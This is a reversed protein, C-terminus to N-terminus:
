PWCPLTSPQNLSHSTSAYHVIRLISWVESCNMPSVNQYWASPSNNWKEPRKDFAPNHTLPAKPYKHNEHDVAMSQLLKWHENPIDDFFGYSQKYALSYDPMGAENSVKQNVRLQPSTGKDTADTTTAAANFKLLSTSRSNGLFLLITIFSGLFGLITAKWRRGNKGWCRINRSVGASNDHTKSSNIQVM